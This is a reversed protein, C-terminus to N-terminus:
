RRLAFRERFGSLFRRIDDESLTELPANKKSVAAVRPGMSTPQRSLFRAMLGAVTRRQHVVGCVVFTAQPQVLFLAPQQEVDVAV